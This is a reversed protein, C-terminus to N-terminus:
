LLEASKKSVISRVGHIFKVYAFFDQGKLREIAHSLGNNHKSLYPRDIQDTDGLLIIKCNEGVRTLITKIVIQTVNQTEDAIILCDSLSRGRLYSISEIEIIGNERMIELTNQTGSSSTHITELKRLTKFNDFYSGMYQSVKDEASGPLFGMEDSVAVTPKLLILKEYNNNKEKLLKTLCAAISLITKGSGSPGSLAVVKIADDLLVDLAVSQELNKGSIGGYVIKPILNKKHLINDEELRYVSKLKKREKKSFSDDKNDPSLLLFENKVPHEIEKIKTLQELPLKQLARRTSWKGTEEDFEGFFEVPMEIDRYGTFELTAEKVLSEKFIQSPVDLLSSKIRVSIDNSILIVKEKPYKEKIKVATTIIVNDPKEMDFGMMNYRDKEAQTLCTIKIRGGEENREVWKNLNQNQRIAEINRLTQRACYGIEDSGKKQNDLEETVTLPIVLDNEEFGKIICDPDELLVNTDLVYIKKM